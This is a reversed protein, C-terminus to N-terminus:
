PKLRLRQGRGSGCLRKSAFGPAKSYCRETSWTCGSIALNRRTDATKREGAKASRAPQLDRLRGSVEPWCNGRALRHSGDGGVDCNLRCMQRRLHAPVRRRLWCHDNHGDVVVRSRRHEPFGGSCGRGRKHLVLWFFAVGRPQLSRCVSRLINRPRRRVNREGRPLQVARCLLRRVLLTHSGHLGHLGLNFHSALKKALGRGHTQHRFRPPRTQLHTHHSRASDHAVVGARHWRPKRRTPLDQRCDQTGDGRLISGSRPLRLHQPAAPYIAAQIHGRRQVGDRAPCVRHHIHDLLRMRHHVVPRRQLFLFRSSNRLCLRRRIYLDDGRHVTVPGPCAPQQSSRGVVDVAAPPRSARTRAHARSNGGETGLGAHAHLVGMAEASGKPSPHRCARAQRAM